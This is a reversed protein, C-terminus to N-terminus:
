PIKLDLSILEDTRLIKVRGVMAPIERILSNRYYNLLGPSWGAGGLILWAFKFRSDNDMAHLLKLIEYPIKEEASGGTNQVKASILARRDPNNLEWIEWDVIHKGGGIKEGVSSQAKRELDNKACSRSICLEVIDEFTKGSSTDRTV